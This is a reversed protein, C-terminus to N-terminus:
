HLSVEKFFTPVHLIASNVDTLIRPYMQSVISGPALEMRKFYEVILQDVVPRSPLAALIEERTAHRNAGLLLDPGQPTTKAVEQKKENEELSDKLEAIQLLNATPQCQGAVSFWLNIQILIDM